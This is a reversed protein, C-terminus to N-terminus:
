SVGSIYIFVRYFNYIILPACLMYKKLEDMNSFILGYLVLWYLPFTIRSYGVFYGVIYVVFFFLLVGLYNYYYRYFVLVAVVGLVLTQWGTGFNDRNSFYYAFKSLGGEFLFGGGMVLGILATSLLTIGGLIKGLRYGSLQVKIFLPIFLLTQFHGFSALIVSKLWTVRIASLFALIALSLGLKHLEFFLVLLYFDSFLALILLRRSWAGMPKDGSYLGLRCFYIICYILLSNKFVLFAPWGLSAFLILAVFFLPEYAGIGGVYAKWLAQPSSATQIGNFATLYNLNDRFEDLSAAYFACVTLAAMSVSFILSPFSLFRVTKNM